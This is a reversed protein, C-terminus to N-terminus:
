VIADLAYSIQISNLDIVTCRMAAHVITQMRSTLRREMVGRLKVHDAFLLEESVGGFQEFYKILKVRRLGRDNKM